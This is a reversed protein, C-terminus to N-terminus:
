TSNVITQSEEITNSWHPDADINLAFVPNFRWKDSQGSDFVTPIEPFDVDINLFVLSSEKKPFYLKYSM